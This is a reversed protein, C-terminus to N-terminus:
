NFPPIFYNFYMQCFLNDLLTFLWTFIPHILSFIIVLSLHLEHSLYPSNDTPTKKERHIKSDEVSCRDGSGRELSEQKSWGHFIPQSCGRDSLFGHETFNVGSAGNQSDGTPSGLIYFYMFIYDLYLPSLASHWSRPWSGKTTENHTLKHTRHTLLQSQKIRNKNINLLFMINATENWWM